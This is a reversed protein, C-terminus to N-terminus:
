KRRRGLITRVIFAAAIAVIAVCVVVTLIDATVAVGVGAVDALCAGTLMMAFVMCAAPVFAKKM